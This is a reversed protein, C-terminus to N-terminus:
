TGVVRELAERFLRATEDFSMGCSKIRTEHSLRGYLNADHTLRLMADRMSDPRTPVVLGTLGNRVSDRLGPVDYVIAPTGHVGAESVVLGWGERVSALLLAHAGAMLRHKEFSQVQGKFSIYDTVGLRGALQVLSRTYRSSGKGVLVLRGSGLSKRFLSLAVIIDGIRKSAALRGVYLFTPEAPRSVSVAESRDVGEPIVVIDGIFGLSRLDKATSPSVTVVPARRYARLYQPEALFGIANLPFRSEHWWVERALQHIFMVTPVDAWIPTMFPITNVEDIVVDFRASLSRRYRRFAEWHVTWQRGARRIQVGEIDEDASAGPFSSSFWEVM